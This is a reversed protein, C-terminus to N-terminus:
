KIAYIYAADDAFYLTGDAVFPATKITGEAAFHWMERGTKVDVAYLDSGSGFYIKGQYISPAGIFDPASFKWLEKRTRQDVAYLEGSATGVYLAEGSVAFVLPSYQEPPPSYKWLEKGTDADLAYIYSPGIDVNGSSSFLVTSGSVVPDFVSIPPSFKWHLSGTAKDLAYIEGVYEVLDSAKEVKRSATFYVNTNGLAFSSSTPEGLESRWGEKGTLRDIAYAYGGESGFYLTTEDLAPSTDIIGNAQVKWNVQKTSNSMSYLTDGAAYYLVMDLSVPPIPNAALTRNELGSGADLVHVLGDFTWIYLESSDVVPSYKANRKEKAKWVLAGTISAGDDMFEGTRQFNGRYVPSSANLTSQAALVANNSPTETRVAQQCATVLLIAAIALIATVSIRIQRVRNSVQFHMRM